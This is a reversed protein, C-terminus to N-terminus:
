KSASEESMLADVLFKTAWNPFALKQYNGWVPYSGALAGRIRKDKSHIDQRAMLYRNLLKAAKLYKSEGTLNFLRLFIISIQANGTLCSSPAGNQWDPGYTARFFGGPEMINLLSEASKFAARIYKDEKLCLGTEFVGRITYAITHTFPHARTRLTFAANDFWGNDHQNKLVWEINGMAATKYRKDDLASGIEALAWAVRSYYSHPIGNYANKKWSGDTDQVRVLWDAAKIAGDLYNEDKTIRYVDLLGFVVQGTDFAFGGLGSGLPGGNFSGDNNQISLEWDAMRIARWKYEELGTALYYNLFTPIIYGTTEPYSPAWGYILSYRLSVGNNGTADQATSLWDMGALIHDSITSSRQSHNNSFENLIVRFLLLPNM